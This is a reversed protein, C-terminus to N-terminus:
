RIPPPLNPIILIPNWAHGPPRHRPHPCPRDRHPHLSPPLHGPPYNGHLKKSFYPIKQYKSTTFPSTMNRAAKNKEPSNCECSIITQSEVTFNVQASQPKSIRNGRYKILKLGPNSSPRLPRQDMLLPMKINGLDKGPLQPFPDLLKHRPPAIQSMLQIQQIILDLTFPLDHLAQIVPLGPMRSIRPPLRIPIGPDLFLQLLQLFERQLIFCVNFPQGAPTPAFADPGPV